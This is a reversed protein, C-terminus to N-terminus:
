MRSHCVFPFSGRDDLYTSHRRCSGSPWPMAVVFAEPFAKLDTVIVFDDHGLLLLRVQHVFWTAEGEGDVVHFCSEPQRQRFHRLRQQVSPSDRGDLQRRVRPPHYADEADDISKPLNTARRLDEPCLEAKRGRGRPGVHVVGLMTRVPHLNVSSQHPITVAIQRLEPEDIM